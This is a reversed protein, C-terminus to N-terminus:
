VVGAKVGKQFVVVWALLVHVDQRLLLGVQPNVGLNVIVKLNSTDIIRGQHRLLFFRINNWHSRHVNLVLLSSSSRSKCSTSPLLCRPFSMEFLMVVILYQNLTVQLNNLLLAFVQYHLSVVLIAGNEKFLDIFQLFHVTKAIHLLLTFLLM